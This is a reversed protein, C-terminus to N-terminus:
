SLRVRVIVSSNPLYVGYHESLFEVEQVWHECSVFCVGKKFNSFVHNVEFSVNNRWQRIPVPVSSFHDLVSQNADLLQIILHYINDTGQRGAWWDSVCIEMKGSDLLEPWFGEKELDLVQKKKHCWRYASQFCIQLPARPMAEWSEEMALAGCGHVVMSKQLVELGKPNRLLNCGIPRLECFRGLICPRANNAPPLCTSVIPCLATHDRALINLWLAQCDVLARRRRCVRRCRGLLVHPPVHSLVMELLETPLQNLGLPEETEPEGAPVRAPLGGSTLNDMTKEGPGAQMEALAGRLCAKM